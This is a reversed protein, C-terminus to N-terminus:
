GLYDTVRLDKHKYAESKKWKNYEKGSEEKIKAIYNTHYQLEDDLLVGYLDSLVLELENMKNHSMNKGNLWHYAFQSKVGIERFLSSKNIHYREVLIEVVYRLFDNRCQKTLEFDRLTGEIKEGM